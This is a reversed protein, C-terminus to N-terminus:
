GNKRNASVDVDNMSNAEEHLVKLKLNFRNKFKYLWGKSFQLDDVNLKHRFEKAKTIIIEDTVHGNIADM